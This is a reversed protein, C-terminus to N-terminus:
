WRKERRGAEEVPADIVLHLADVTEDDDALPAGLVVGDVFVLAVTRRAFREAFHVRNQVLWLRGRFRGTGCDFRCAERHRQLVHDAALDAVVALHRYQEPRTSVQQRASRASVLQAM